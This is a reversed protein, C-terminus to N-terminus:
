SGRDGVSPKGADACAEGKWVSPDELRHGWCEEHGRVGALSRAAPDAGGRRM